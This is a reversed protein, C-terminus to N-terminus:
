SSHSPPTDVKTIKAPGPKEEEEKRPEKMKQTDTSKGKRGKRGEGDEKPEKEKIYKEELAKEDRPMIRQVPIFIGKGCYAFFKKCTSVNNGVTITWVDTKMFVAIGVGLLCSLVYVSIEDALFDRELVDTLNEKMIKKRQLLLQLSNGMTSTVTGIISM